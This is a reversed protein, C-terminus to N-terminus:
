QIAECCDKDSQYWKNQQKGDMQGERLHNNMQALFMLVCFHTMHLAHDLLQAFTCQNSCLAGAWDCWKSDM